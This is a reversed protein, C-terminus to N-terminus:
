RRDHITDIPPHQGGEIGTRAPAAPKSGNGGARPVPPPLNASSTLSSQSWRSVATGATRIPSCNVSQADRMFGRSASRFLRGAEIPSVALPRVHTTNRFVM